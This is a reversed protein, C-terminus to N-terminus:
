IISCIATLATFLPKTESPWKKQWFRLSFTVAQTLLYTSKYLM